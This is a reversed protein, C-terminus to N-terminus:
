LTDDDESKSKIWAIVGGGIASCLIIAVPPSIGTAKVHKSVTEFGFLRLIPMDPSIGYVAIDIDYLDENSSSDSVWHQVTLVNSTDRKFDYAHYKEDYTMRYVRDDVFVSDNRRTAIVENVRLLKTVEKGPYQFRYYDKDFYMTREPIGSRKRKKYLQVSYDAGQYTITKGKGISTIYSVTDQAFLFQISLPFLIFSLSCKM